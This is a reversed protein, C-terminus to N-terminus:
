SRTSPGTSCRGKMLASAMARWCQGPSSNRWAYWAARSAAAARVATADLSIFANLAEGKQAQALLADVYMALHARHFGGVGIHVIGRGVTARDYGPVEVGEIGDTWIGTEDLSRM